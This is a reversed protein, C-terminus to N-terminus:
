KYNKQPLQRFRQPRQGHPLRGTPLTATKLATNRGRV